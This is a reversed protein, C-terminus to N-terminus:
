SSQPNLTEELAFQILMHSIQIPEIAVNIDVHSKM